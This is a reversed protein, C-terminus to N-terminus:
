PAGGADAVPPRSIIKHTFPGYEFEFRDAEIVDGGQAPDWVLLSYEPYTQCGYVIIFHRLGRRRSRLCVLYGRLILDYFEDFDLSGGVVLPRQQGDADVVVVDEVVHTRGSRLAISVELMGNARLARNLFGARDMAANLCGVTEADRTWKHCNPRSVGQDCAWIGDKGCGDVIACQARVKSNQDKLRDYFTAVSAAAAAWCWNDAAQYIGQFREALAGEPKIQAGPRIAIPDFGLLADISDVM